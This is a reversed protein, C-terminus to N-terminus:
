REIQRRYREVAEVLDDESKKRAKERVDKTFVQFLKEFKRRSIFAFEEIRQLEVDKAQIVPIQAKVLEQESLHSLPTDVIVAKIEREVLMAATHPGGGSADEFLVVDGSKLGVKRMYADIGERTFHPIAKVAITDGRMELRRVGKFLEIRKTLDSVQGRLRDTEVSTHSLESDKKAIERDRKVRWYNDRSVIDLSHQLESERFKLYEVLRGLDTNQEALTRNEAELAENKGALADFRAQTLVEERAPQQTAVEVAEPAEQVLSALAENIAMGRIVLAKLHNRDVMLQEERAKNDIQELRPLVDRYAYIAATLADREHANKIRVEQSFERATEQKEAVPIPREPTFVTLNVTSAIKKVLHPVPTVDTAVIVPIGHQYVLRIIDARTLGKRSTLFSVRGDLSVLCLAATTGPDIGLIFYQPVLEAPVGQPELPVFEVRKRVPSVFVNFDSGRRSEVLGKIAPLPAYAVLRSSEYGFDSDRIDTDHEIGAAKLQSEIFRTVQQIESHLRRRYRNASQGGSGTKRGRTVRVETQEGFCELRHGVGLHALQAAITAAALPTLHGGSRLKYRRALIKLPVQNPPVGTVQVLKTETPIRSLLAFVSKSDPVIELINDTALYKPRIERVLDLLDRRSIEPYENLVVGNHIIACSYRPSTTSRPSQSPLIDFGVIFVSDEGM